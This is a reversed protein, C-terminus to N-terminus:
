PASPCRAPGGPGPASPRQAASTRAEVYRHGIASRAGARTSNRTPVPAVNIPGISWAQLPDSDSGWVVTMGTNALPYSYACAVRARMRTGTLGRPTARHAVQPDDLDDLFSFRGAPCSACAARCGCAGPQSCRAEGAKAPLQHPDNTRGVCGSQYAGGLTGAGGVEMDALLCAM